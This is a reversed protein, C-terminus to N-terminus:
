KKIPSEVLEKYHEAYSCDKEQFIDYASFGVGTRTTFDTGSKILKQIIEVENEESAEFINYEENKNKLIKTKTMTKKIYSEPM